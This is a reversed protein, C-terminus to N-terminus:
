YIRWNATEESNVGTQTRHITMIKILSSM